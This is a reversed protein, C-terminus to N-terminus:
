QFSTYRRCKVSSIALNCKFCARSDILFGHTLYMVEELAVYKEDTLDFSVTFSKKKDLKLALERDPKAFISNRALVISLDDVRKCIQDHVM